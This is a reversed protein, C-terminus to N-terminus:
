CWRTRPPTRSSPPSRSRARWAPPTAPRRASSRSPRPRPAAGSWCARRRRAGRRPPWSPPASRTPSSTSSTACRSSRSRRASPSGGSRTPSWRSAAATSAPAAEIAANLSLIHTEQAIETILDLVRYIERSRSGLTEARSAIGSIRKKVDEVGFVAEEVAALGVNGSREATQALEAQTAANEAIQSATRALEEMAATIEVVSTAQQSSGSALESAIQNVSSSAGAIEVSSAQIQQALVDLANTATSFATSLRGPLSRAQDACHVLDGARLRDLTEALAKEVASNRRGTGEVRERLSQQLRYIVRYYFGCAAAGVLLFLNFPWSAAGGAESLTLLVLGSVVLGALILLGLFAQNLRYGNDHIVELVEEPQL